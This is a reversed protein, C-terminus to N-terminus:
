RSLLKLVVMTWVAGNASMSTGVGPKPAMPRLKPRPVFMVGSCASGTSRFAIWSPQVKQSVATLQLLLSLSPPPLTGKNAAATLRVANIVHKRSKQNCTTYAAPTLSFSSPSKILFCLTRSLSKMAEFHPKSTSKLVPLGRPTVLEAECMLSYM